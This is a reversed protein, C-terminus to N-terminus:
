CTVLVVHLKQTKPAIWKNNIFMLKNTGAFISDIYDGLIDFEYRNYIINRIDSSYDNIKNNRGGGWASGELATEQGSM